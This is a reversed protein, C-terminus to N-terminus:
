NNNNNNYGKFSNVILNLEKETIINILMNMTAQFYDPSNPHYLNYIKIENNKIKRKFLIANKELKLKSNKYIYNQFLSINDFDNTNNIPYIQILHKFKQYYTSNTIYNIDNSYIYVNNNMEFLKEVEILSNKQYNKKKWFTAILFFANIFLVFILLPKFQIIKSKFNFCLLNICSFSYERFEKENEINLNIDDNNKNLQNENKNLNIFVDELSTTSITYKDIGYIDKCEEIYEFINNIENKDNTSFNIQLLTNSNIKIYANKDKDKLENILQERTEENFSSNIILNLNFGNQYKNKLFSSTGSYIYKGDKIIGIKDSLFEAEELSHTTLIIIKDKKNEKLFKWLEKRSNIDLGTTPEDLLIINNNGMLSLTISLKRKEGKSLNKCIYNGIENLGIKEIFNNLEKNNNENNLKLFSNLHENVTLNEFLIDEQNCLGIKKFLYEKNNILSIGNYLIDGEDPNILGSIINILTTKGAGNEGLLCFIENPFFDISLDNIAIIDNYKKTLRQINLYNNNNKYEKEKENLEEHNENNLLSDETKKEENELPIINKLKKDYISKINLNIKSKNYKFLFISLILYVTLLILNVKIYSWFNFEDIFNISLYQYDFNNLSNIKSLHIQIFFISIQPYIFSFIEAFTIIYNWIFPISVLLITHFFFYIFYLVLSIKNKLINQLIFFLLINNLIYLIYVFLIIIFNINTFLFNSNILIFFISFIIFVISYIVTWSLNNKNVSIGHRKLLEILKKEIERKIIAFFFIFIFFFIFREYLFIITLISFDENYGNNLQSSEIKIVPINSKNSIQTFLNTIIEQFYSFISIHNLSNNKDKKSHILNFQESSKEITYKSINKIYYNVEIEKNDYINFDITFNINNEKKWNMYKDIDESENKIEKINEIFPQKKLINIFNTKYETENSIISVVNVNYSLNSLTKEFIAYNHFYLKENFEENKKNYYIVFVLYLILYFLISCCFFFFINQNNIEKVRLNWLRRM